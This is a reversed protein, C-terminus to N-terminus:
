NLLDALSWEPLEGHGIGTFRIAHMFTCVFIRGEYAVFFTGIVRYRLRAVQTGPHLDKFVSVRRPRKLANLHAPPAQLPNYKAFPYVRYSYIKAATAVSAPTTILETIQFRKRTLGSTKTRIEVERSVQTVYAGLMVFGLRSFTAPFVCRM